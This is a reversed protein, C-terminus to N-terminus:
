NEFSKRNMKRVKMSNQGKAVKKDHQNQKALIYQSLTKKPSDILLETCAAAYFAYLHRMGGKDQESPVNAKSIISSKNSRYRSLCKMFYLEDDCLLILKAGADLFKTQVVQAIASVQENMKTWAKPISYTTRTDILHYIKCYDIPQFYNGQRPKFLNYNNFEFTSSTNSDKQHNITITSSVFFADFVVLVFLAALLLCLYDM